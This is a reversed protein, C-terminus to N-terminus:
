QVVVAQGQGVEIRRINAPLAFTEDLRVGQPREPSRSYFSVLEQLLTPPVPVGSVEASQIELRGMGDRTHLIGIVKVPVRGGFQRAVMRAVDHFSVSVGTAANLAGLSRHALILAALAAVDDVAVHDRREEGEGFILIPQGGEAQRRFRNPGYGNHPDAAGYILTPRLAAFPVPTSAKLMLERAAHMMGHITSPAVTSAETVPNADDAYVADSSIYVLHAIEGEALAACVAEAMRLNQMLAPVTKAPAVASIFV